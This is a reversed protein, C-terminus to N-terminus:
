RRKATKKRGDPICSHRACRPRRARWREPSFRLGGHSATSVQTVGAAVEENGEPQAEGWPTMGVNWSSPEARPEPGFGASACECEDISYRVEHCPSCLRAGDQHCMEAEPELVANCCEACFIEAVPSM